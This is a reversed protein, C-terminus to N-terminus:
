LPEPPRSDKKYSAVDRAFASSTFPTSSPISLQSVGEIDEIGRLNHDYLTTM